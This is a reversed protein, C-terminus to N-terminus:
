KKMILVTFMECGENNTPVKIFDPQIEKIRVQKMVKNLMSIKIM